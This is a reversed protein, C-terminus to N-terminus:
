SQLGLINGLQVGVREGFKDIGERNGGDRCARRQLSRLRALTFDRVVPNGHALSLRFQM